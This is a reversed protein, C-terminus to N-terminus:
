RWKDNDNFTLRINEYTPLTIPHAKAIRLNAFIKTLARSFFIKIDM